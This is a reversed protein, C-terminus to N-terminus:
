WNGIDDPTDLAKDRGMSFLDFSETNRTGPYRYQYVQGWPDVPLNGSKAEM